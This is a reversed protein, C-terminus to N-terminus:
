HTVLFVFLLVSCHSFCLSIFINALSPVAIPTSSSPAVLFGCDPLPPPPKLFSKEGQFQTWSIPGWDYCICRALLRVKSWFKSPHLKWLNVVVRYKINQWTSPTSHWSTSVTKDQWPLSQFWETHTHVQLNIACNILKICLLTVRPYM